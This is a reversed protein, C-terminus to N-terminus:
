RWFSHFWSSGSPEKSYLVKYEYLRGPKKFWPHLVFNKEKWFEKMDMGPAKELKLDLSSATIQKDITTGYRFIPVGNKPSFVDCPKLDPHSGIWHEMAFREIGMMSPSSLMWAKSKHYKFTTKGDDLVVSIKKTGEIPSSAKKVIQIFEGKKTKFAKPPILKRVYNCKSTWMNGPYHAPIGHFQTSCTDCSSLMQSLDTSSDTITTSSSIPSISSISSLCQDSTVAKMLINRLINNEKSPTFAGKTHIYMVVDNENENRDCYEYLHQLTDMEDGNKEDSSLEVCKRQNHNTCTAMPFDTKTDDGFRTYYITANNLLPQNHIHKLQQLIISQSLKTEGQKTFTNFFVAARNNLKTTQPLPQDNNSNMMERESAPLGIFAPDINISSADENNGQKGQQSQKKSELAQQNLAYTQYDKIVQNLDHVSEKLQTLETFDLTTDKASKDSAPVINFSSSDENNGQKGQQSQKKSELAQQNKANTQYDKIVQSLDHVSEELEEIKKLDLTAVKASKDSAPVINFSSADENNEQKGQQSQKLNELAQQNKAYGKIVQNLDHASEKLEKFKKFDLTAEKASKDPNLQKVSRRTQMERMQKTSSVSVSARLLSNRHNSLISVSVYFLFLIIVSTSIFIMLTLRRMTIKRRQPANIVQGNSAINMQDKTYQLQLNTIIMFVPQHGLTSIVLPLLKIVLLLLSIFLGHMLKKTPKRQKNFYIYGNSNM